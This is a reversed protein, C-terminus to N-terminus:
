IAVVQRQDVQGGRVGVIREQAVHAAVEIFRAQLDLASVIDTEPGSGRVAISHRVRRRPREPVFVIGVAAALRSAARGQGSAVDLDSMPRPGNRYFLFTKGDSVGRHGVSMAWRSVPPITPGTDIVVVNKGPWDRRFIPRRAVGGGWRASLEGTLQITSLVTRRADVVAVVRKELHVYARSPGSVFGHFAGPGVKFTTLLKLGPVDIVGGPQSGPDLVGGATPGCDM